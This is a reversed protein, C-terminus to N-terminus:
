LSVFVLDDFFRLSLQMLGGDNYTYLIVSFEHRSFEQSIKM